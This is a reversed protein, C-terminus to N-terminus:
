FFVFGNYDKSVELNHALYKRAMTRKAFPNRAKKVDDFDWIRQAGIGNFISCMLLCQFLSIAYLAILSQPDRFIYTLFRASLLYLQQM